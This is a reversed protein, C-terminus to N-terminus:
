PLDIEFFVTKLRDFISKETAQAIQNEFTPAPDLRDAM